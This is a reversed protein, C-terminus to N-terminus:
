AEIIRISYQIRHIKNETSHTSEKASVSILIIHLKIKVITYIIYIYIYIYMCVIYYM